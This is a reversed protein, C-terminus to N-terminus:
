GSCRRWPKGRKPQFVIIIIRQLLSAFYGKSIRPIYTYHLCFLDTNNLPDLIGESELDYFKANFSAVVQKNVGRNHHEIRQNHVSSGVIVSRAHEGWFSTMDRWILVNEGGYDTRVHILRGYKSVAEQFLPFVTTSRNNGSCCCFTVLRSFGDIGHHIVFGQRIMKHNGDTHWLYNPCLVSYVRRNIPPRKRASVNPDVHHIADCVHQGHVHELHGHVM